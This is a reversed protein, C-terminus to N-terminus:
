PEESGRPKPSRNPPFRGVRPGLCEIYFIGPVQLIAELVAGQTAKVKLRQSSLETKWNWAGEYFDLVSICYCNCGYMQGYWGLVQPTLM